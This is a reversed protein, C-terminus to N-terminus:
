EGKTINGIISIKANRELGLQRKIQFIFNSRAKAESTALTSLDLNSAIEKDFKTASGKFYYKKIAM